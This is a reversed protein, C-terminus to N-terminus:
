DSEYELTERELDRLFARVEAHACLRTELLSQLLAELHVRLAVALVTPPYRVLGRMAAALEDLCEEVSLDEPAGHTFSM